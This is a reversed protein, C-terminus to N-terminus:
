AVKILDLFVVQSTDASISLFDVTPPANDRFTGWVGWGGYRQGPPDLDGVADHGVGGPRWPYGPFVLRFAILGASVGRAGVVSYSGVPLTQSFTLAGNTWAYGTLTTTNTCRVTFVEGTVPAIAGDCLWALVTEQEAGAAAEAVLANLKEGAELPLPNTFRSHFNQTTLPEAGLDLAGIDLLSIRRLHPSSLQALTITTGLAYYGGLQALEPVTVDDGSVTVHQDALAAVLTLVAGTDQSESWGVLTHPM